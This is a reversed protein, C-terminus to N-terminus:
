GIIDTTIPKDPAAKDGQVRFFDTAKSGVYWTMGKNATFGMIVGVGFPIAKELAKRTFRLGLSSFLKKVAILTSGKLHEKVLSIFAKSTLEQGSQQALDTLAGVGALLFCLRREEEALVDHDYVTALAMTMEIQYKMTLASDATTGGFMALVTGIGPIVGSLATVGGSFAAYYSYNSILKKATKAQIDAKSATPDAHIFADRLALAERKIDNPDSLLLDIAKLLMPKDPMDPTEQPTKDTM